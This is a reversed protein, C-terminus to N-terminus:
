QREGESVSAVSFQEDAAQLAALLRHQYDGLEADVPRPVPSDPTAAAKLRRQQFLWVHQGLRLAEQPDHTILLVTRGELAKFALAQLRHRTVADLASFPEDMLVIPTDQMLTRALAVRQRMGGSLADPLLHSSDALGLQALLQDARAYDEASPKGKSLRAQLCVNDRVKLWPLLLDQQAMYAIQGELPQGHQDIIEGSCHHQPEILGALRRLLSTKGCGSSGLLCTWEGAPLQLNLDSFVPEPANQYQLSLQRINIETAQM